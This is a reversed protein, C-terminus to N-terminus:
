VPIGLMRVIALANSHQVVGPRLRYDFDLSGGDASDAFHVNAGGPLQQAIETLALDHTSILGVAGREVLAALISRAAVKRDSSNTGSMIEDVLFLLPVDGAAAEIMNRLRDVEAFFRSKGEVLSDQM